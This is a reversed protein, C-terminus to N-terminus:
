HRLAHSRRTTPATLDGIAPRVVADATVATTSGDPRRIMLRGSPDVAVATATIIGSPSEITVRRGLTICTRSWDELLPGSGQRRLREYGADFRNLLTVLLRPRSVARGQETQISTATPRLDAPMSRRPWNVNVGIGVVAVTTQSGRERAEVLIGGVKRGNIIVDNPWKTAADLGTLDRIADRLAVAALFPLAAVTQRPFPAGLVISLYLNRGPPSNWSRGLRGRGARQADAVIVTGDPAGAGSAEFATTNTSDVATHLDIRSGIRGGTLDARPVTLPPRETTTTRSM